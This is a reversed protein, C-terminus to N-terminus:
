TLCGMFFVVMAAMAAAAVSARGAAALAWTVRCGPSAAEPENEFISTRTGFSRSSLPVM